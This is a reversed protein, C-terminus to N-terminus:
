EELSAKDPAILMNALFEKRCLMPESDEIPRGYKVQPIIRHTSPIEINCLVPGSLTLVKKLKKALEANSKITITKFGYAAGIKVFDPCALGGELSSACFRGGLWQEQTQQIMSYGHNNLLLVKIPLKHRAITALEQINMQLGGDGSICVVMGKKLAFSAGIAAPLAYGMPTNNFASYLRQHKKFEFAQGMWGVACGTDVVMTTGDVTVKSLEKVFVYPNVANEKRYKLSCIPYREKWQAIKGMWNTIDTKKWDSLLPMMVKLFEKLDANILLSLHAGMESFKKLEAPDIDVIVKKAERAFSSLPSGAGRTDIRTGLALVLDSNQVAFNGYRTGHTGFSGVALPHNEPLLHKMAWTLAVPFGLREVFDRTEKEAHALHVGWGLLIIPRKAQRMLQLCEKLTKEKISPSDQSPLPIFGRMAALDIQARQLNDPIDILVPGPRGSKAIYIAKELEYRIASPDLLQVCYKTVPKFIDVVDTEQFGLQRVGMDQKLRFTSVNGTLCLLPVSDYYSCCVGTLLNTAGPGSTAMVVGINKTVRAYADAAMASAQEHQNCIYDIKATKAISDILHASAGGTIAFVHKIGRKALFSAIYDSLKM